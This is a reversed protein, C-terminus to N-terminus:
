SGLKRGSFSLDHRLGGPCGEATELRTAGYVSQLCWRFNQELNYVCRPVPRIRNDWAIELCWNNFFFDEAVARLVPRAENYV